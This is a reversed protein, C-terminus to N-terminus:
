TREVAHISRTRQPTTPATRTLFSPLSQAHEGDSGDQDEAGEDGCSLLELEHM